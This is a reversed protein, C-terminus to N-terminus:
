MTKNSSLGCLLRIKIFLFNSKTDTQNMGSLIFVKDIVM